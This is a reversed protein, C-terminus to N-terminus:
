FHKGSYGWMIASQESIICISENVVKIQGNLTVLESVGTFIYGAEELQLKSVILQSM